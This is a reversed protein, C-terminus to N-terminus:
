TGVTRDAQHAHLETAKTNRDRRETPPRRAGRAQSAFSLFRYISLRLWHCDISVPRSVHIDLTVCESPVGNSDPSSNRVRPSHVDLAAGCPWTKHFDSSSRRCADCNPRVSACSPPSPFEYLRVAHSLDRAVRLCARYACRAARCRDRDFVFRDVSAGELNAQGKLHLM